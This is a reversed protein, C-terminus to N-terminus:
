KILEDIKNIVDENFRIRYNDKNGQVGGGFHIVCLERDGIMIKNDKIEADKWFPKASEGYIKNGDLKKVKYNFYDSALLNLLDQERYQYRDFHETFCLREWHKAFDKNKIVVLGNNFYNPNGIDWVGIQFSPDNLTCAVDFDGEWIDSLDGTIIQDADLGCVMDYDNLLISAIIPKARYFFTPLQYKSAFEEGFLKLEIDPHFKELSKKLREYYNLNNRDAITFFCKTKSMM